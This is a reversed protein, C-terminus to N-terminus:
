FTVAREGGAGAVVPVLEIAAPTFTSGDSFPVVDKNGIQIEIQYALSRPPNDTEIAWAAAFAGTLDTTNEPSWPQLNAVVRVGDAVLRARIAIASDVVSDPKLTLNSQGKIGLLYRQNPRMLRSIDQEIILRGRRHALSMELGADKAYIEPPPAFPDDAAFPQWAVVYGEPVMKARGGPWETIAGDVLAPNNNVAVGLTQEPQPERLKILDEVHSGDPTKSVAPVGDSIEDLWGSLELFNERMAPSLPMSTGLLKTTGELAGIVTRTMHNSQDYQRELLAMLRDDSRAVRLAKAFYGGAGGALVALLLLWGIQLTVEGEFM